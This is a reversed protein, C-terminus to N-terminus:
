VLKAVMRMIEGTDGGLIPAAARVFILALALAVFPYFMIKVTLVALKDAASSYAAFSGGIWNADISNILVASGKFGPYCAGLEQLTSDPRGEAKVFSPDLMVFAIPFVFYFGIAIAILLGGVGRTLPFIRLLIGLPLFVSLMNNAIYVALTYQAHLAVQLPVIKEGLLHAQEVAQHMELHWSGCDVNMGFLMICASAASETDKNRKYIYNYMTDLAYINEQLKCKFAELPGGGATASTFSGGQGQDDFIGFEYGQCVITSGAGIVQDEIYKFVGNSADFLLVSAFVIILASASVQLFEAKAWRKLNDLNFAVGLMYVLTNFGVCALAAMIAYQKWDRSEWNASFGEGSGYQGLALQSLLLLGLAILHAKGM